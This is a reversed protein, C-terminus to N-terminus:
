KILINIDEIELAKMIKELNDLNISRREETVYGYITAMRIKTMKALQYPTIDNKELYSKLRLKLM